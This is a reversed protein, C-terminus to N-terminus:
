RNFVENIDTSSNNVVVIAAIDTDDEEVVPLVVKNNLATIADSLKDELANAHCIHLLNVLQGGSFAAGSAEATSSNARLGGVFLGTSFSSACDLVSKLLTSVSLLEM